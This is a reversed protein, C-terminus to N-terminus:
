LTVHDQMHELAYPADFGEIYQECVVCYLQIDNGAKKSPPGYKTLSYLSKLKAESKKALRM